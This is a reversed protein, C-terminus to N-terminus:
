CKEEEIEKLFGKALKASVGSKILQAMLQERKGKERTQQIIKRIMERIEWPFVIWMRTEKEWYDPKIASGPKLYVTAIRVEEAGQGVLHERVLKLSKGTDVVEDVVLVKRKDVSISVPHTLVPASRTVSIGSYFEAGVSALNPNDLLDALIRAPIWGGRSVGVILDPEFESKNINVALSLLMTYIQNWTPAEFEM